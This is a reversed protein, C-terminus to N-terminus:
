FLSKSIKWRGKKGFTNKAQSSIREKMRLILWSPPMFCLPKVIFKLSQKEERQVLTITLAFFGQVHFPMQTLHAVPEHLCASTGASLEQSSESICMPTSALARGQQGAGMATYIAKLCCWFGAKCTHLTFNRSSKFTCYDNALYLVMFTTNQLVSRLEQTPGQWSRSNSQTPKPKHLEYCATFNIQLNIAQPQQKSKRGKGGGGFTFGVM